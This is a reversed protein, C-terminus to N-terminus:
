TQRKMSEASELRPRVDHLSRTQGNSLFNNPSLKFHREGSTPNRKASENKDLLAALLGEGRDRDYRLSKRTRGRILVM